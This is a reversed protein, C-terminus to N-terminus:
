GVLDRVGRSRLGTKWHHILRSPLLDIEGAGDPQLKWRLSAQADGRGDPRRLWLGRLPGISSFGHDDRPRASLDGRERRRRERRRSSLASLLRGADARPSLSDCSPFPPKAINSARQICPHNLTVPHPNFVPGVTGVHAANSACCCHEVTM